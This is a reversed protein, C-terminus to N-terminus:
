DLNLLLIERYEKRTNRTGCCEICINLVCIYIYLVYFHIKYYQLSSHASNLVFNTM